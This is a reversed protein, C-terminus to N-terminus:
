PIVWHVQFIYYFSRLSLGVSSRCLISDASLDHLASCLVTTPRCWSDIAKPIDSESEVLGSIYFKHGYSVGVDTRQSCHSCVARMTKSPELIYAVCHAAWTAEVCRVLQLCPRHSASLESKKILPTIYTPLLSSVHNCLGTSYNWCSRRLVVPLRRWFSGYTKGRDIACIKDVTVSDVSWVSM